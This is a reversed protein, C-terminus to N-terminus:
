KPKSGSETKEVKDLVYTIGSTGSFAMGIGSAPKATFTMVVKEGLAPTWGVPTVKTGRQTAFRVIKGSPM